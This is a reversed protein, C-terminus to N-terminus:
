ADGKPPTSDPDDLLDGPDRDHAGSGVSSWWREVADALAMSELLTLGRLTHLLAPGSLQWKEDLANLRIADEVEAPIWTVTWPERFWHGNLVDLLASLEKPVFKERLTKRGEALLHQYRALDRTQMADHPTM